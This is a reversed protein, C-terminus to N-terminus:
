LLVETVYQALTNLMANWDSVKARWHKDGIAYPSAGQRSLEWVPHWEADRRSWVECTVHLHGIANEVSAAGRAGETMSRHDAYLTWRLRYDLDVMTWESTDRFRYSTLKVLRVSSAPNCADHNDLKPPDIPPRVVGEPLASM